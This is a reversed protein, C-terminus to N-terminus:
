RRADFRLYGGTQARSVDTYPAIFVVSSADPLDRPHTTSPGPAASSFDSSASVSSAYGNSLNSYTARRPSHMSKTVSSSSQSATMPHVSHGFTKGAPERSPERRPVAAASVAAAAIADAAIPPPTTPPQHHRSSRRLALPNLRCTTRPLSNSSAHHVPSDRPTPGKSIFRSHTSFPAFPAATSTATSQQNYIYLAAGKKGGHRARSTM